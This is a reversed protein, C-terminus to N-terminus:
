KIQKLWYMGGKPIPVAKGEMQRGTILDEYIGEENIWATKDQDGFNFLAILKEGEYSRIIGLVSADWTDITWVAADTSFVKERARIEEM